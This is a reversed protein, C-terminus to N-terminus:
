SRASRAGATRAARVAHELERRSLRAAGDREADARGATALAPLQQHGGVAEGRRIDGHLDGGAIAPVDGADHGGAHRQACRRRRSVARQADQHRNRAHVDRGGAPRLHRPGVLRFEAQRSAGESLRHARRGFQGAPGQERGARQRVGGDDRDQRHRAARRVPFRGEDAAARDPRRLRRGAAHLRRARRARGRGHRDPRRRGAQERRHLHRRAQAAATAGGAPGHHRRRRRARVRRRAEGHAVPLSGAGPATSAAIVSRSPLRHSSSTESRALPM